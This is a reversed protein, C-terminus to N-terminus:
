LLFMTAPAMPNSIGQITNHRFHCQSRELAEFDNNEVIIVAPAKIRNGQLTIVQQSM